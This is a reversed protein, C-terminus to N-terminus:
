ARPTTQKISSLASSNQQGWIVHGFQGRQQNQPPSLINTAGGGRRSYRCHGYLDSCPTFAYCYAIGPRRPITRDPRFTVPPSSCRSKDPQFRRLERPWTCDRGLITYPGYLHLITAFGSISEHCHYPYGYQIWLAERGIRRKYPAQVYILKWLVFLM